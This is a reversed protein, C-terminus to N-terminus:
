TWACLLHRHADYVMPSVEMLTSFRTYRFQVEARRFRSISFWIRKFKAGPKLVHFLGLELCESATGNWCPATSMNWYGKLESKCASPKHLCRWALLKEPKYSINETCLDASYCHQPGAVWVCASLVFHSWLSVAAIHFVGIFVINLSNSECKSISAAKNRSTARSGWLSVPIKTPFKERIGNVEM